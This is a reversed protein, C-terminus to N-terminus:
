PAGDLGPETSPDIFRATFTVSGPELDRTLEDSVAHALFLGRGTIDTQAALEPPWSFEGIFPGTSQVTLELSSEDPSVVEVGLRDGTGYSIANTVLETVCLEIDPARERCWPPEDILQRCWSRSAHISGLEAAFSRRNRGLTM